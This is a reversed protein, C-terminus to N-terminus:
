DHEMRILKDIMDSLIARIETSNSKIIVDGENLEANITLIDQLNNKEVDLRRYDTESLYINVIQNKNQIFTKLEEIINLILEPDHNLEKYIIKKLSQKIIDNIIEVIEEDIMAMPKKLKEVVISMAQLKVEYENKLTEYQNKLNEIEIREADKIQKEEEMKKEEAPNIIKELQKMIPNFEENVEVVINVDPFSWEIVEKAQNEQEVLEIKDM